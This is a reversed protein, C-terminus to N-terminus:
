DEKRADYEREDFWMAFLLCCVAHALHPLKSEPDNKEGYWWADIHRMAADYYRRRADPVHQWNDVQYKVAGFELVGIIQHITDAPLLSWRSKQTDHKQGVTNTIWEQGNWEIRSGDLFAFEDISDPSPPNRVVGRHYADLWTEADTM